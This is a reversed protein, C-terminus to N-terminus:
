MQNMYTMLFMSYVAAFKDYIVLPFIRGQLWVGPNGKKNDTVTLRKMCIGSLKGRSNLQQERNRAKSAQEILFWESIYIDLNSPRTRDIVTFTLLGNGECDIQLHKDM